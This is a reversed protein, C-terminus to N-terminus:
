YPYTNMNIAIPYVTNFFIIKFVVNKNLKVNYEHESFM